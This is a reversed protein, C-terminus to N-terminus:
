LRPASVPIEAHEKMGVTFSAAITSPALLQRSLNTRVARHHPLAAFVGDSELFSEPGPTPQGLVFTGLEQPGCGNM